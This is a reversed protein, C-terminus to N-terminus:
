KRKAPFQLARNSRAMRSAPIFEDLVHVDGSPFDISCVNWVDGTATM